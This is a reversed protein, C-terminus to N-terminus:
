GHRSVELPPNESVSTHRWRRATSRKKKDTLVAFFFVLSFFLGIAGSLYALARIILLILNLM